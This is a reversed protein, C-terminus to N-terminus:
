LASPAAAAILKSICTRTRDNFDVLMSSPEYKCQLGNLSHDQYWKSFIDPQTQFGPLGFQSWYNTGLILAAM